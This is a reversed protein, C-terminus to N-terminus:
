FSTTISNSVVEIYDDIDLDADQCVDHIKELLAEIKAEAKVKTKAFQILEDLKDIPDWDVDEIDEVEDFRGGEPNDYFQAVGFPSGDRGSEIQVYVTHSGILIDFNTTDLEREVTYKQKDAKLASEVAWIAAEYIEKAKQEDTMERTKIVYYIYDIGM